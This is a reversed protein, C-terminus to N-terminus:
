RRSKKNDEIIEYTCYLNKTTIETACVGLALIGEGPYSLSGTITGMNKSSEIKPYDEFSVKNYRSSQWESAFLLIILILIGLLILSSFCGFCGCCGKKHKKNVTQNEISVNNQTVDAKNINAQQSQTPTENPLNM